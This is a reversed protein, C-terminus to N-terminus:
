TFIKTIEKIWNKDVEMDNSLFLLINGEAIEAGQNNAPSWGKNENNEIIKLSM